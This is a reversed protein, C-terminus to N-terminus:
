RTKRNASQKESQKATQTTGKQEIAFLHHQGRVFIIGNSIAPTAMLSEGMPNVSLLEYTPGAKFVYVDGDESPFYLKGDIAVPSASFSGGQENIRHQFLQKGTKVDHCSLVGKDNCVYLYDGYVIPTPVYPGGRELRWAVQTSSNQGAPLSLDGSGGPRFVKISRGGPWGGTVFVQGHAVFPTPVQVILDDNAFRWLEKGTLPDQARIYRPANTILEARGKAEVITPTSWSPMEGREVRWARRGTQLNYAALFSQAHGDCQVIVLDKYIIPSSSHGWQVAADEHLGPDLMGLDQKWVLRGTMDFCFLGESGFIAVVYRGDTAPTANAQSAKLHRKVRPVGEHAIKRWLARGTSKDFCYIMWRYRANEPVPDNSDTETQFAADNQINVATTIFVRNGWVVPSSHALGPIPAKWKINRGQVSNWSVAAGGGDAVGAAQPGRFSPWNQVNAAPSIKSEPECGELEITSTANVIKWGDATRMLHFSNMGCHSIRDDVYIGYRGRVFALDGGVIADTRYMREKLTGKTEVILKAFAEGSYVRVSTRGARRQTSTLQGESSFVARIAEANKVRMADFLQNVVALTERDADDKRISQTQQYLANLWHDGRRVYLSSVWVPSPVPNGNCATDQEARYTLLATNVDFTTLKFNEVTYSKVVCNPSAVSAVVTIKNTVGGFGIEAHDESLFEQFFKGDRKKWAEWSQKELSVLTEKLVEEAHEKQGLALSSFTYIVLTIVIFKKM